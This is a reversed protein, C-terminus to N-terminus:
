SNLFLKRNRVEKVLERYIKLITPNHLMKAHKVQHHDAETLGHRKFTEGNHILNHLLPQLYDFSKVIRAEKSELAEFEEFLQWFEEARDKPLAAFLQKAAALERGKKGTQGDKDFLFTDGAHIEVLDHILAMKVMKAVDAKPDVEPGLVLAFMAVHWSHEADNEQGGDPYFIKRKVTRLREIDKLFQVLQRLRKTM